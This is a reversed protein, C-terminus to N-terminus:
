TQMIKMQIRDCTADTTPILVAYQCHNVEERFRLQNSLNTTKEMIFYLLQM